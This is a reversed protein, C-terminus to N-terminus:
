KIYWHPYDKFKRFDGGWKIDIGMEKATSKVFGAFEKIEEIGNWRIHPKESYWQMDDIAKSPICNHDSKKHYGDCYTIVKDKDVIRWLGDRLVRGKRFYEKQILDSRHGCLVTNDVTEIVKMFLAILDVDCELLRETSRKSYRPM